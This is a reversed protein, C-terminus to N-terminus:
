NFPNYHTDYPLFLIEDYRIQISQTIYTKLDILIISGANYLHLSFRTKFLYRITKVSIHHYSLQIMRRLADGRSNVWDHGNDCNEVM